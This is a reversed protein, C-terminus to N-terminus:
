ISWLSMGPASVVPSRALGRRATSQRSVSPLLWGTDPGPLGGILWPSRAFCGNEPGPLVSSWRGQPSCVLFTPLWLAIGPDRRVGVSKCGGALCLRPHVLALSGRWVSGQACTTAHWSGPSCPASIWWMCVERCSVATQRKRLVHRAPCGQRKVQLTLERDIKASYISSM